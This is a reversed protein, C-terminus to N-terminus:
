SLPRGAGSNQSINCCVSSVRTGSADRTRTCVQNMTGDSLSNINNNHCHSLPDFKRGRYACDLTNILRQIVWLAFVLVIQIRPFSRTCSVDKCSGGDLNNLRNRTEDFNHAVQDISTSTGTFGVHMM